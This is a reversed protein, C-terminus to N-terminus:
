IFNSQERFLIAQKLAARRKDFLVNKLLPLQVGIAASEGQTEQPDLRLGNNQEASMIVDIGYWTPIKFDLQNYNYYLIDNLEKHSANLQLSPDFGARSKLIGADASKTQLNAQKMMPHFNRVIAIFEDESLNFRGDQGSAYLVNFFIILLIIFRSM